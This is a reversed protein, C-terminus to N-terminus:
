IPGRDLLTFQANKGSSSHNRLLPGPHIPPLISEPNFLQWKEIELTICYKKCNLKIYLHNTYREFSALASHEYFIHFHLYAAGKLSELRNTTKVHLNDPFDRTNSAIPFNRVCVPVESLVTLSVVFCLLPILGSARVAVVYCCYLCQGRLQIHLKFKKRECLPFGFPDDLFYVAFSECPM